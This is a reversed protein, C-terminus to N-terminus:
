PRAGFFALEDPQGITPFVLARDLFRNFAECSTEPAYVCSHCAAGESGREDFELQPEHLACVPDGSCLTGLEFARRLHHRLWRGQEVLGGLTGESGPTGTSLLIGARGPTKRTPERCYIRERISSAAYGCELSIATMLLHALTHLMYYRAGRFEVAGRRESAYRRFGVLLQDNRARVAARAEWACLRSEDFQLFLGEGNIEIAPLWKPELALPAIRADEAYSGDARPIAAELRTFGFQARVERLKAAAVVCAIGQVQGERPTAMTRAWFREGLPPQEGVQEPPAGVFAEWEADDLPPLAKDAGQRRREIADLVAKDSWGKALAARLQPTHERLVKLVEISTVAGLTAWHDAVAKAIEDDHSPLWLASLCQAFYGNTATRVLLRAKKGCKEGAVDHGGLWPREGSCEPRLAEILAQALKSTAGCTECVVQIDSIDGSAGERLKIDPADCKPKNDARHTWWEWPWDSIHGDECVAVFRVPVARAGQKPYGPGCHHIRGRSDQEFEAAHAITACRQCKFFRPFELAQIGQRQTPEDFNCEPPPQLSLNPAPNMGLSRMIEVAKATLRPEDIEIMAGGQKPAEYRWFDLGGVLVADNLLDIMAGPGYGMLLQSRRVEGEPRVVRKQKKGSSRAM